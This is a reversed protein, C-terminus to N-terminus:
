LAALEAGCRECYWETARNLTGCEGCKLTKQQSAAGPKVSPHSAPAPAHSTDTTTHSARAHEGSSRAPKREESSVSKLFALEDMESATAKARAPEPAPGPKPVFRPASPAAPPPPSHEVIPAVDGPSGSAAAVDPMPDPLMEIPSTHHSTEADPSLVSNPTPTFGAVPEHASASAPAAAAPRPAETMLGQVEVLRTIEAEVRSLEGQVEDLTRRTDESLRNWEDDGYEGVAHRVEAEALM